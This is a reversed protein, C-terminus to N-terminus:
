DPHAPNIMIEEPQDEKELEAEECMIQNDEWKRCESMAASRTLLTAIGRPTPFKMMAHITSPVARLAKLGSRGLIVNYPSPARIITFKMTTRRSLGENGFEVDMELKGLPKTVDGTFGLLDTHTPRLRSRISSHLNNFCHEFMIEVSAREDVFVRRVLYGEIMAEIILPEDSVDDSLIPPFIIPVNMWGETRERDKRKRGDSNTRAMNIIKGKRPEEGRQVAGKQKVDKILHNLKGSELAEELQKQLQRCDNTHHGKEMHYDCYKDQNERRPPYNM